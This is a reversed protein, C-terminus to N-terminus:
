PCYSCIVAEMLDKFAFCICLLSSTFKLGRNEEHPSNTKSVLPWFERVWKVTDLRSCKYNLNNTQKNGSSGWTHKYSGWHDSVATCRWPCSAALTANTSESPQQTARACVCQIQATGQASLHLCAPRCYGLAFVKGVGDPLWRAQPALSLESCFSRECSPSLLRDVRAAHIFLDHVVPLEFHRM